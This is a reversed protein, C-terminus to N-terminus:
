QLSPPVKSEVDVLDDEGATPPLSATIITGDARLAGHFKEPDPSGAIRPGQDSLPVVVEDGRTVTVPEGRVSVTLAHGEEIAFTISERRVTARIRTGYQAMRFTLSTFADPLRPDFSLMSGHDRMGGFGFVLASWVGGASAVHVGDGTNSHLDALDVFVSDWFYRLAM